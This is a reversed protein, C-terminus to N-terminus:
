NNFRGYAHPAWRWFHVGIIFVYNFLTELNGALGCEVGGVLMCVDMFVVGVVSHHSTPPHIAALIGFLSFLTHIHQRGM